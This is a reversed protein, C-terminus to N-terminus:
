PITLDWSAVSLDHNLLRLTKNYTLLTNMHDDFRLVVELRQPGITAGCSMKPKVEVTVSNDLEYTVRLKIPPDENLEKDVKECVLQLLMKEFAKRPGKDKRHAKLAAKM